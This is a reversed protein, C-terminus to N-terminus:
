TESFNTLDWEEPEEMPLEDSLMDEVEIFPDKQRKYEELDQAFTRVRFDNPDDLKSSVEPDLRPTVEYNATSLLYRFCDILHDDKRPLKNSKDTIYNETEHIFMGCRDSVLLRNPIRMLDRILSIQSDRGVLRKQTPILAVGYRDSVEVAFWAAAEDYVFTWQEPYANLDDIMRCSREWIQTTSCLARDREYIEDLLIVQGTFPNICGFLAAFVTTTGPDFVCFWQLKRIDKRIMKMLQTHPRVHTPRSFKPFVSSAGGPVFRAMYEREWIAEEGRQVMDYRTEELLECSIHPNTSTPLELYFYKKDGAVQKSMIFKRMETYFCEADPPTGVMIVSANKAKLNPEMAQFAERKWDKFEDIILLDPKYGRLDDENDSGDIKIFSGTDFWVRLQAQNFSENGRGLFEKPIMNRLYGSHWIIESQQKQKPGIIYIAANNNLIAHRVACYTGFLSKGFNRGCQLMIQKAGQDFYARGATIQGDHPKFLEHLKRLRDAYARISSLATTKPPTNTM